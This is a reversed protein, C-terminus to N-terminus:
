EGAPKLLLARLQGFANPHSHSAWIDARICRLGAMEFMSRASAETFPHPHLHDRYHMLDLLVWLHGGPRLLRVIESLVAWPDVVHDLCNETIVLDATGSPLPIAEGPAALHVVRDNDAPLLGESAYGDALPDVAVASRWRAECVAPHPGGGIEVVRQRACWEALPGIITEGPQFPRDLGLRGGLEYLRTRQWRGFVEHLEGQFSPEIGQGARAWYTLEARYKDTLIPRPRGDRGIASGSALSGRWVARPDPRVVRQVVRQSLLDLRESLPSCAGRVARVWLPLSATLGAASRQEEFAPASMLFEREKEPTCFEILGPIERVTQEPPVHGM